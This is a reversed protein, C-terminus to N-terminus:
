VEADVFVDVDEDGDVRSEERRLQVPGSLLTYVGSPEHYYM